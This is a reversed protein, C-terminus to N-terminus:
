RHSDKYAKKQAISSLIGGGPIVAGAIANLLLNQKFPADDTAGPPASKPIKPKKKPVLNPTPQEPLGADNRVGGSASTGPSMAIGKERADAEAGKFYGKVKIKRRM